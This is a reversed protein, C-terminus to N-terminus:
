SKQIPETRFVNHREHCCYQNQFFASLSVANLWTYIIIPWTSCQDFCAFFFFPLLRLCTSLELSFFHLTCKKKGKTCNEGKPRIEHKRKMVHVFFFFNRDSLIILMAIAHLKRSCYWAKAKKTFYRFDLSREFSYRALKWRSGSRKSFQSRLRSRSRSRSIVIASIKQSRKVYHNPRISIWM